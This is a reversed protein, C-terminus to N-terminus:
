QEEDLFQLVLRNFREASEVMVLHGGYSMSVLRSDPIREAIERLFKTPTLIDEAGGVLLTPQSIAGIRDLSDHESCAQCQRVFLDATYPAGEKRYFDTMAQILDSQEITDEHLVWLLRNFIFTEASLGTEMLQSWHKLLMQRKKDARAYTGVLVLNGMREPALLALEQATMGGMFAGLVDVKQIELDDLLALADRALDKTSFPEGTDESQGIGRHDFIIVRRDKSFEPVQLPLWGSCSGAMGMILLLPRAGNASSEGHSEYYLNRGQIKAITM